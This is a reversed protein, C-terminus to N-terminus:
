TARLLAVAAALCGVAVGGMLWAHARPIGGENVWREDRLARAIAEKWRGARPPNDVVVAGDAAVLATDCSSCAFRGAADLWGIATSCSPCARDARAALVEFGREVKLNLKRAALRHLLLAFPVLVGAVGVGAGLIWDGTTPQAVSTGEALAGVGGAVVALGVLVWAGAEPGVHGARVFDRVAARVEERADFDLPQGLDTTQRETAPVPAREHCRDCTLETTENSPIVLVAECTPCAFAALIRTPM